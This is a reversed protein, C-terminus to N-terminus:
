SRARQKNEIKKEISAKADLLMKLVDEEDQCNGGLMLGNFDSDEDYYPFTLLTFLYDKPLMERIMGMINKHLELSMKTPKM